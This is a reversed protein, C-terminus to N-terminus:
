RDLQGPMLGVPLPAPREVSSTIDVHRGIRSAEDFSSVIELVHYALEGSARHQRGYVIGYALEAVGIGRALESSHSLPVKHWDDDEARRLKVVGGFGNPNPVVLSGETGYIELTPLNAHWIDFSTILTAIPGAALDITGTVHTTVEVAIRRGENGQSTALREPFTRRTSGTVREAPGLLNVLTTVYYPGMDFMPGGGLQYYFDPNPHFSEPGHYVMFGVAAVPEGIQGEDILKRCTQGGGGMFTDPACGVRVGQAQAAALIERGEALTVGLPKESYVHKGASVAALNLEAHARPVTLNLVIQIDPDSLIDDVTCVIPIGFREAQRWAKDRDIDACASIHLIDFARCGRVYEPLIDGTGIIGVNIRDEM